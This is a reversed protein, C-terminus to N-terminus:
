KLRSPCCVNVHIQGSMGHKSSSQSQKCLMLRLLLLLALVFPRSSTIRTIFLSLLSRWTMTCQSSLPIHIRLIRVPLFSQNPAPSLSLTAALLPSSPSEFWCFVASFLAFVLAFFFFFFLTVVTLWSNIQM